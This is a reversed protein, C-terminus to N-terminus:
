YNLEYYKNVLEIAKDVGIDLLQIRYCKKDVGSGTYSKGYEQKVYWDKVLEVTDVNADKVWTDLEGNKLIVITNGSQDQRMIKAYSGKSTPELTYGHALLKDKFEQIEPRNFFREMRKVRDKARYSLSEETKDVNDGQLKYKVGLNLSRMFGDIRDILDNDDDKFWEGELRYPKLLRHLATEVATCDEVEWAAIQTYQITMKNGSIGRARREPTDTTKGIKKETVGAEQLNIGGTHIYQGVYVYQKNM